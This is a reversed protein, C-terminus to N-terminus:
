SSVALTAFEKDRTETVDIEATREGKKLFAARVDGPLEDWTVPAETILKVVEAKPSLKKIVWSISRKIWAHKTQRQFEIAQKLLYNRITAWAEKITSRLAVAIKDLATFANRVTKSFAPLNRDIWPLLSAESWDLIRHWLAVVTGATVIGILGVIALTIPDM